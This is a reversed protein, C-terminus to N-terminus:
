ADKLCIALAAESRLFRALGGAFQDGSLVLYIVAFPQRVETLCTSHVCDPYSTRLNSEATARCIFTFTAM